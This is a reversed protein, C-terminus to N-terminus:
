PPPVPLINIIAPPEGGFEGILAGEASFIRLPIKPNYESLAELSPLTPFVVVAAYAVLLLTALLVTAFAFLPYIWWRKFMSTAVDACFISPRTRSFVFM